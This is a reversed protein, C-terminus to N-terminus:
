IKLCNIKLYYKSWLPCRTAEEQAESKAQCAVEASGAV